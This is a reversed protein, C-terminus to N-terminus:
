LCVVCVVNAVYSKYPERNNEMLTYLPIVWQSVTLYGLERFHTRMTPILLDASYRGETLSTKSCARVGPFCIVVYYYRQLKEM